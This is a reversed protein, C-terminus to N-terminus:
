SAAPLLAEAERVYRVAGVSRYFPLAARLQADADSYRGDVAFARAARLRARAAESDFGIEQLLEAARVDDGDLTAHAAADVPTQRLTRLFDRVEEGRGFESALAALGVVNLSVVARRADALVEDLYQEAKVREGLELSIEGAHLVIPIWAQPTETSRAFELSREIDRAAGADDGRAHEILARMERVTDEGYQPGGAEVDALYANALRLAEDWQGRGYLASIWIAESVQAMARDGLRNLLEKAKGIYEASKRFDFHWTTVSLNHYARAETRLSNCGVALELGQQMAKAGEPDRSESLATGITVLTDARLEDLDFAEAM